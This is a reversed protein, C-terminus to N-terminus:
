ANKGGKGRKLYPVRVIREGYSSKPIFLVENAFREASRRTDFVAAPRMEYTGRIEGLIIYKHKM